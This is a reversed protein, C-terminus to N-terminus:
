FTHFQLVKNGFKLKYGDKLAFSNERSIIAKSKDIKMSFPDANRYIIGREILLYERESPEIVYISEGGLDRAVWGKETKEIELHHELISPDSFIIDNDKGGGIKIIKASPGKKELIEKLPYKIGEEWDVLSM